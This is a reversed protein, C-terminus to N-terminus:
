NRLQDTNQSRHLKDLKDLHDFTLMLDHINCVEYMYMTKYLRNNTLLQYLTYQFYLEQYKYVLIHNYGWNGPNGFAKQCYINYKM